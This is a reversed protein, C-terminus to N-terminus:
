DDTVEGFGHNRNSDVNDDKASIVDGVNIDVGNLKIKESSFDNIFHRPMSINVIWVPVVVKKPRRKGKEDTYFDDSSEINVSLKMHQKSYHVHCGIKTLRLAGAPDPMLEYPYLLGVEIWYRSIEPGEIIEGSIWNKYAYLHLNDLVGEFEILMDLNTEGDYIKQLNDTIDVLNIM